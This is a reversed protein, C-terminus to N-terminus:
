FWWLNLSDGKWKRSNWNSLVTAAVEGVIMKIIMLPDSVRKVDFVKDIWKEALLVGVGVGVRVGVRVQKTGTWVCKQRSDKGEIMRASAGRWRCEQISCLDTVRRSM